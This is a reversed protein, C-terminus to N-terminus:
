MKPFASSILLETEKLWNEREELSSDVVISFTRRTVENVGCFDFVCNKWITELPDGFVNKERWTSTNSTNIVVAKKLKLLGIPAGGEQGKEFTYAMNMRLVRDIWGSLMAPPKGWWNPHIVVIGESVVIEDVHQNVLPDDSDGIIEDYTIVPNFKEQYLDHFNFRHGNIQLSLKVRNAIAHNFSNAHPHCLIVQINM